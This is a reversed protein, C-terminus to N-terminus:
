FFRAGRCGSARGRARSYRCACPCACIHAHTTQTGGSRAPPETQCRHDTPRSAPPEPPHGATTQKPPRTYAEGASHRLNQATDSSWIGGSRNRPYDAPAGAGAGRFNECFFARAPKASGALTKRHKLRRSNRRQSRNQAGSSSRLM